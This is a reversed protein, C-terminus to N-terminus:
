MAPRSSLASLCAPAVSARHALHTTPGASCPLNTLESKEVLLSLGYNLWHPASTALSSPQSTSTPSPPLRINAPTLLTTSSTPSLPPAAPAHDHDAHEVVLHCCCAARGAGLRRCDHCFVHVQDHESWTAPTSTRKSANCM